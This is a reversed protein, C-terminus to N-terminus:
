HWSVTEQYFESFLAISRQVQEFIKKVYLLFYKSNPSVPSLLKEQHFLNSRMGKTTEVKLISVGVRVDRAM